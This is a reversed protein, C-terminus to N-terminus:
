LLLTDSGDGSRERLTRDDNVRVDDEDDDAAAIIAAAAAAATAATVPLEDPPLGSGCGGLEPSGEAAAGRDWSKRRGDKNIRLADELATKVSSSGYEVGPSVTVADTPFSLRREMRVLGLLRSAGLYVAALSIEGVGCGGAFAGPSDAPFNGRRLERKEIVLPVALDGDKEERSEV